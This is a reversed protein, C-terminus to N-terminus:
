QQSSYQHVAHIPSLFNSGGHAATMLSHDFTPEQMQSTNHGQNGNLQM